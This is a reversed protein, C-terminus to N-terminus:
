QLESSGEIVKEYRERSCREVCCCNRSMGEVVDLRYSILVVCDLSDASMWQYVQSRFCSGTNIHDYVGNESGVVDFERILPLM